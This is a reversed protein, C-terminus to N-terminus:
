KGRVAKLLDRPQFVAVPFLDSNEFQVRLAANDIDLLDIDSTALIPICALSTEALILGDNFEGEPLFGKRILANSFQETIAHGAPILDFPTIGWSRMQQLAKLALMSQGTGLLFLQEKSVPLSQLYESFCFIALLMFTAGFSWRWLVEIIGVYPQAFM